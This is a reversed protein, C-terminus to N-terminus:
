SCITSHVAFKLPKYFTICILDNPWEINSRSPSNVNSISTKPSSVDSNNPSHPSPNIPSLRGNNFGNSFHLSWMHSGSKEINWGTKETHTLSVEIRDTVIEKQQDIRWKDFESRFDQRSKFRYFQIFIKEEPRFHGFSIRFSSQFVFSFPNIVCHFGTLLMIKNLVHM